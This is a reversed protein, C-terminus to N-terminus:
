LSRWGPRINTPVVSCVRTSGSVPSLELDQFKLYPPLSLLNSVSLSETAHFIKYCIGRSICSASMCLNVFNGLGCLQNIFLKKLNM